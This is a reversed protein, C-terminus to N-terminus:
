ISSNIKKVYSLSYEKGLSTEYGGVVYVTHTIENIVYRRTSDNLILGDLLEYNIDYYNDFNYEEMSLYDYENVKDYPLDNASIENEGLPDNETITQAVGTIPLSNTNLYYEEIKSTLNMLDSKIENTHKMQFANASMYTITGMLMVILIIMTALAILTVGRKKNTEKLKM